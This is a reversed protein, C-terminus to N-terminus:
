ILEYQRAIWSLQYVLAAIAFAAHFWPRATAIAVLCAIVYAITRVPYEPGFSELYAAGKIWTDVFDVVYVVALTGFIWRRRSYFYERYGAYGELSDPLIFVCLLYLLLAYLAVFLYVAFTWPTLASLRFEWWWFHLLYVFVFLVWVLHVWCVRTQRPHDVIRAVHRLLHTLGLGVIMGLLVRVHLYLAGADAAPLTSPTM